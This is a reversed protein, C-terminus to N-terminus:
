CILYSYCLIVLLHVLQVITSSVFSYSYLLIVLLHIATRLLVLLHVLQLM